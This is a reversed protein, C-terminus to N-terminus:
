EHESPQRYMQSLLQFRSDHEANSQINNLNAPGIDSKWNSATMHLRATNIPNLAQMDALHSQALAYLTM